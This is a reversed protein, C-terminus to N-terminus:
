AAPDAWKRQAAATAAEYDGAHLAAVHDLWAQTQVPPVSSKSRAARLEALQELAGLGTQLATLLRENAARDQGCGREILAAAAAVIAEIGDRGKDASAEGRPDGGLVGPLEATPAVDDLHVLEPRQAWLLSTEWVGAHDGRAGLELLLEYEAVPFVAVDATRMAAVAARRVAITDDLGYHGNLVLIVKFGFRATQVLVERLLDGILVTPLRLTYPFPVGGAAWWSLPGLVARSREAVAAALADAKLGDLGLPLHHSHWEITGVPLVLAPREALRRELEAPLLESLRALAM